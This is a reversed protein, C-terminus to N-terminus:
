SVPPAGDRRQHGCISRQYRIKRLGQQEAMALLVLFSGTGEAYAISVDEGAM